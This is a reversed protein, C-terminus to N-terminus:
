HVTPGEADPITNLDALLQEKGGAGVIATIQEGEPVYGNLSKTIEEAVSMLVQGRMEKPARSILWGIAHNLSGILAVTNIEYDENQSSSALSMIFDHVKQEIPERVADLKAKSQVMKERQEDTLDLGAEFEECKKCMHSEKTLPPLSM